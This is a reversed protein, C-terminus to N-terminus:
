AVGVWCACCAAMTRLVQGGVEEAPTFLSRSWADVFCERLVVMRVREWVWLLLLLLVLVLLVVLVVM